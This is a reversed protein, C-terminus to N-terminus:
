LLLLNQKQQECPDPQFSRHQQKHLLAFFTHRFAATAVSVSDMAVSCFGVNKDKKNKEEAFSSILTCMGVNEKEIHTFATM